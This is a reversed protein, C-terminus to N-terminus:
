DLRRGHGGHKSRVLDEFGGCGVKQLIEVEGVVFEKVKEVKGCFHFSGGAVVRVGQVALVETHKEFLGRQAGLEGELEGHLLHAAPAHEQFARDANALGQLIDGAVQVAPHIAQDGAHEQLARDIAQRLPRTHRHDVGEAVEVM